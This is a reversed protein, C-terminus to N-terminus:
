RGARSRAAVARVYRPLWLTFLGGQYAAVGALFWPLKGAAGAAVLGGFAALQEIPKGVHALTFSTAVGAPLPPEWRVREGCCADFSDEMERQALLLVALGLGLERGHRAVWGGGSDQALAGVAIFYGAWFLLSGVGDLMAGVPSTRKTTRAINGDVCDLVLMAVALAAVWGYAAGGAALAIAPMAVAIAFGLATAGDASVGAMLFFPTVVFSVPRYILYGLFDERKEWARKEPPHSRRVQALLNLYRALM